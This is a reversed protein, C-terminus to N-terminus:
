IVAPISILVALGVVGGMIRRSFLMLGLLVTAVGSLALWFDSPIEKRLRIAEAIRLIGTPTASRWKVKSM